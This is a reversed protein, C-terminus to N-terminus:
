VLTKLKGDIAAVDLPLLTPGVGIGAATKFLTL